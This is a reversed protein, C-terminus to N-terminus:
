REEWGNPDTLVLYMCYIFTIFLPWAGIIFKIIGM